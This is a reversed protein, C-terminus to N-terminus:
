GSFIIFYFHFLPHFLEPDLVPHHDPHANGQQRQGRDCRGRQGFDGRRQQAASRPAIDGTEEGDHQHHEIGPAQHQPTREPPEQRREHGDEGDRQQRLDDGLDGGHRIVAEFRYEERHEEPQQDAVHPTNGRPQFGRDLTFEVDLDANHAETGRNEEAVHHFRTDETQHLRAQHDGDHPEKGEPNRAAHLDVFARRHDKRAAHRDAAHRGTDRRGAHRAAVVPFKRVDNRQHQDDDHRHDIQHRPQRMRDQRMNEVIRMDHLLDGPRPDATRDVSRRTDGCRAHDHAFHGVLM